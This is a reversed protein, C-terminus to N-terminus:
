RTKYIPHFAPKAAAKAAPAMPVAMRKSGLNLDPDYHAHADPPVSAIGSSSAATGSSSAGGDDQESLPRVRKLRREPPPRLEQWSPLENCLDGDKLYSTQPPRLGLVKLFPDGHQPIRQPRVWPADYADEADVFIRMSYMRKLVRDVRQAEKSPKHPARVNALRTDSQSHDIHGTIDGDGIVDKEGDVKFPISLNERM